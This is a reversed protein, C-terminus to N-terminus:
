EDDSDSDSNAPKPTSNKESSSGEKPPQKKKEPTKEPRSNESAASRLASPDYAKAIQKKQGNPLQQEFVVQDATIQLIVGDYFPMGLYAFFVRGNPMKLFAGYGEMSRYIGNVSIEEILYPASAERDAGQKVAQRQAFLREELSPITPPPEPPPTEATKKKALSPNRAKPVPNNEPNRAPAGARSSVTPKATVTKTQASAHPLMLGSILGVILVLLPRSLVM